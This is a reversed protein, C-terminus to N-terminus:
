NRSCCCSWEMCGPNCTAHIGVAISIIVGCCVVFDIREQKSSGTAVRANYQGLGIPNRLFGIMLVSGRGFLSFSFVFVFSVKWSAFRSLLLVKNYIKSTVITFYCLYLSYIYYREVLLIQFEDEKHRRYQHNLCITRSFQGLIFKASICPQYESIFVCKSIDYLCFSTSQELMM